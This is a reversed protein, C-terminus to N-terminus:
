LLPSGSNWGAESLEIYTPLRGSSKSERWLQAFPGVTVDFAGGRKQAVEQALGLVHLLDDSVPQWDYPRAALMRVESNPRSDSMMDELQAIRTFTAHAADRAAQETPAYMTVRFAVGMHVSTFEHRSQADLGRALLLASLGLGLGYARSSLM